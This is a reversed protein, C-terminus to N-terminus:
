RLRSAAMAIRDGSVSKCFVVSSRAVAHFLAAGFGSRPVLALFFVIKFKSASKLLFTLLFIVLAWIPFIQQCIVIAAKICGGWYSKCHGATANVCAAAAGLLRSAAMVILDAFVSDSQTAFCLFFYQLASGLIIGACGVGDPARGGSVSGMWRGLELLSLPLHSFSAKTRSRGCFRLVWSTFVFSKINLCHHYHSLQSLIITTINHYHHYQSLPSITITTM